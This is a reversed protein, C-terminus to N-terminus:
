FRGPAGRRVAGVGTFSVQSGVLNAWTEAATSGEEVRVLIIPCGGQDFISDIAEMLTGNAGLGEADSPRLIQVPKNLPFKTEDADPATGILGIVATQATRVLVPTEASEFVRTGHHFSVSAM